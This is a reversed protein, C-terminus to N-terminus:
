NGEAEHGPYLDFVIDIGLQLNVLRELLHSELVIGAQPTNLFVGCFLDMSCHESINRLAGAREEIFTLLVAIHEEMPRSEDLGSYKHWMTTSRIPSQPNRPSVVTRQGEGM